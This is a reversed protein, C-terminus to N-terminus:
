ADKSSTYLGCVKEVEGTEGGLATCDLYGSVGIRTMEGWTGASPLLFAVASGLNAGCKSMSAYGIQQGYGPAQSEM